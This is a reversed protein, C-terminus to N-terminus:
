KAKLIGKEFFYYADIKLHAEQGPKIFRMDRQPITVKAYFKDHKPVISLLIDGKNIFNQTFKLNYLNLIEGDIQATVFQKKM